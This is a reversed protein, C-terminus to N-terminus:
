TISGLCGLGAEWRPGVIGMCPHTEQNECVWLILVWVVPAVRHKSKVNLCASYPSSRNPVTPPPHGASKCCAQRAAHTDVQEPLGGLAPRHSAFSGNETGNILLQIGGSHRGREWM